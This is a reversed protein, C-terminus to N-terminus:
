DAAEGQPFKLLLWPKQQLLKAILPLEKAGDIGM